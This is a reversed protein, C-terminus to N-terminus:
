LVVKNVLKPYDPIQKQFVTMVQTMDAGSTGKQCTATWLRQVQDNNDIIETVYRRGLPCVGRDDTAKVTRKKDFGLRALSRLFTEYAQPNNDFKHSDIVTNQYGKIVEVTKSTRGVTIRIERHDEEGKIQGGSTLVVKSDRSAYDTLTIVKPTAPQTNKTKSSDKKGGGFILVMIFIFGVIVTLFIIFRNRSSM